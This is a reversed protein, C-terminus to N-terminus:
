GKPRKPWVVSAPDKTNTIDLLARRYAAWAARQRNTMAAWRLPNSVSPDLVERLLRDREARLAAFAQEVRQEDTRPDIWRRTAYDFIHFFAGEPRPPIEVTEGGEIYTRGPSTAGVFVACGDPAEPEPHRDPISMSAKIEGTEVDYIAYDAM